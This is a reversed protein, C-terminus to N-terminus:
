TRTFAKKIRSVSSFILWSLAVCQQQKKEFIRTLCCGTKGPSWLELECGFGANDLAAHDYACACNLLTCIEDDSCGAEVWADKIPCAMMKVEIGTEDLRHIDPKFTEGDDPSLVWSECLGEFDRPAHYSMSEGAIQGQARSVSRMVSIAEHEGYRKKLERFTLLYVKGREKIADYVHSNSKSLPKSNSM